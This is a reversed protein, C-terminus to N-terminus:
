RAAALSGIAQVVAIGAGPYLGLVVIGAMLVIAAAGRFGGLAAPHPSRIARIAPFLAAAGGAMALVVLEEWGAALLVRYVLVKGHFGITPPLGILTLWALARGAAGLPSGAASEGERPRASISLGLGGALLIALVELAAARLGDTGPRYLAAAGGFVPYALCAVAIWTFSRSPRRARVALATAVVLLVAGAAALALVGAPIQDSPTTM